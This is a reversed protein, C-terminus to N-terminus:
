FVTHKSYHRAAAVAAATGLQVQPEAPSWLGWGCDWSSRHSLQPGCDGEHSGRDYTRDDSSLLKVIDLVLGLNLVHSAPSNATRCYSDLM